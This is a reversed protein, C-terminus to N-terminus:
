AAKLIDAFEERIYYIRRESDRHPKRIHYLVGAVSHGQIDLTVNMSKKFPLRGTVELTHVRAMAKALDTWANPELKFECELPRGPFDIRQGEDEPTFEIDTVLGIPQGNILFQGEFVRM